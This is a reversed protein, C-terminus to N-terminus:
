RDFPGTLNGDYPQYNTLTRREYPLQYYGLGPNWGAGHGYFPYAYPGADYGYGYDANVMVATISGDRGFVVDDVVGYGDREQLAVPDGIFERVRWVRPGAWVDDYDMRFDELTEKTLPVSVSGDEPGETVQNWDVRAHVDGIDLFAETEVIIAQVKNDPGVLIDEVEGIEDGAPGHVDHGLLAEASWGSQLPTTDWAQLDVAEPPAAAKAGSVMVALAVGLVPTLHATKM